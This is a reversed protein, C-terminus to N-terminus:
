LRQKVSIEEYCEILDGEKMESFGRITLGCEMGQPVEKVDDKFRKLSSLESTHIVVGERVVRCKADRHAKGEMVYCGAVTGVKTIKFVNRVEINCMFREEITPELLGEMATKVEKVADYIISYLRIDINEQEAQRRAQPNPRVQFGIIIAESATALLVDSETIAGVSRHIIRVQVQETSLKLLSDSLAEVSGDVDGKIILNLEKFNGLALRRGIEELTIHKTARQQQERILQERKTAITKADQESDMVKVKEGAQPAGNLGLVIVPESPGAAKVKAGRENYMARVRGYYQGVLLVDGVKITGNQVLITSVYGKGKDLAAEIVTGLGKRKPNAKLDLLEAELLIKELLLPVNTGKKASIEQSQYTGGWEEVLLNMQALQNRVLEPQADPKDIKNIAFIMKVGAAQAHSIAEKTQLMISDDAAIVIVAIDTVKAGRARMATFAAHGPTDLFTIEKDNSMTVSYAGIHQTIGGMEGAVVNANRIYDLLSTKGHDVHGMITVIPSRPVLDEPLDPQEDAADEQETASVFQVEFGFEASLVEILEADLRQNISVILGLSFCTTIVQPASVSMLKALESVTVFETVQLIKENGTTDVQRKEALIERKQKRIKARASKSTGASSLKAMTARIKDQIEKESVEGTQQHTPKEFRDRKKFDKKEREGSKGDKGKALEVRKVVVKKEGQRGELPKVEKQREGRREGGRNDKDRDRRQQQESGKDKEKLPKDRDKPQEGDKPKAQQEIDEVGVRKEKVIRKRKRKRKKDEKEAASDSGGLDIKAVIRLGQLTPTEARDIKQPEPEKKEAVVPLSSEDTKSLTTDVIKARDRRDQDRTKLRDGISDKIKPHELPEKQKIREATQNASNREADRSLREKERKAKEREKRKKKKADRRENSENDDQKSSSEPKDLDIKGVIKPGVLNPTIRVTREDLVKEKISPEKKPEDKADTKVDTETDGQNKPFIQLEPEKKDLKENNLADKEHNKESDVPAVNTDVLPKDLKEGKTQKKGTEQKVPLGTETSVDEKIDLIPEQKEPQEQKSPKDKVIAREKKAELDSDAEKDSTDVAKSEKSIVPTDKDNERVASTDIKESLDAKQTEKQEVPEVIPVPVPLPLTKQEANPLGGGDGTTEVVPPLHSSNEHSEVTPVAGGDQRFEETEDAKLLGKEDRKPRPLHIQEAKEKLTKEARFDKLLINYMEETLKTTPKAELDKFGKKRLHEAITEIGVNIELAVKALRVGKNDQM